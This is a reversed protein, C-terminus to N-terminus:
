NKAESIPKGVHGCQTWASALWCTKLACIEQSIVRGVTVKFYDGNPGQIAWTLFEHLKVEDGDYLM